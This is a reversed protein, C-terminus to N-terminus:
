RFFVELVTLDQAIHAMSNPTFYLTLDLVGTHAHILATFVCWGQTNAKHWVQEMVSRSLAPVGGLRFCCRCCCSQHITYYLTNGNSSSMGLSQQKGIVAADDNTRAAGYLM